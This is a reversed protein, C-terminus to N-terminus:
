DIRELKGGESAVLLGNRWALIGTNLGVYRVGDIVMDIEQPKQELLAAKSVLAFSGDAYICGEPIGRVPCALKELISLDFDEYVPISLSAPEGNFDINARGVAAVPLGSAGANNLFDYVEKKAYKPYLFLCHSFEHGNFSFRGNECKIRGDTIAYDPVLACRYGADWMETVKGQIHLSGDIDWVNRKEYDPYWNNQASNGFIVLLDMKPVVTQFSDLKAIEANLRSMEKLFNVDKFDQGWVGDNYSHHFQRCNFPAGEVMHNYYAEQSHSYYMDFMLPGPSALMIGMRVPYTINEDTHGFDRPLDWWACATHWIEDCDLHNHFTNHCSLYIDEGWLEKARKAVAHEDKLIPVRLQDFYTNIAKIRVKEEGQPAYRMDFLLKQLDLGLEEAYYKEQGASYFRGRFPEETGRNINATNLLLYGHEDMCIGDFPVDAYADQLALDAEQRAGGFFEYSNFYQVIMFFLTFGALEKGGDFEIQCSATRSDIIRAYKTVDRLTASDYFGEGTKRFAYVKLIRNRLPRLKNRAWKARHTLEAYGNKDAVLEYDNVIGEAKTADDLCFIQAQDVEIPTGEPTNVLANFFGETATQRFTVKLGLKHAYEVLEKVADHSQQLNELQVGEVCAISVYDVNFNEHIFDLDKLYQKRRLSETNFQWVLPHPINM